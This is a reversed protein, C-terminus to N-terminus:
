ERSVLQFFSEDSLEVQVWGDQGVAIIQGDLCIRRWQEDQEEFDIRLSEIAEYTVNADYVHQGGQYPLTVLRMTEESTVEGIHILHLQADLPQSLPSITYDKELHSVLTVLTYMHSDGEVRTQKVAGVDPDKKAYSVKGRYHRENNDNLSQLLDTAVMKFREAGYRRYFTTDSDAVLSAHLGWSLVVAGYVIIEPDPTSPQAIPERSKGEDVVYVSGPSLRVALMPLKKPTGRVLTSLGDTLDRFQSSNATANGTGMPIIAVIPTVFAGLKLSSFSKILDVLGGDGSLLIVTQSIGAFARPILINNAFESITSSSETKHTQYSKVNLLSLVPKMAQEYFALARGTGAATSVVVHIDPSNVSAQQLHHPWPCSFRMLISEPIDNLRISTVKRRTESVDNAGPVPIDQLIIILYAFENEHTPLCAVIQDFQVKVSTGSTSVTWTLTQSEEATSLSARQGDVLASIKCFGMSAVCDYTPESVQQAFTNFKAKFTEIVTKWDQHPTLSRRPACGIAHRSDLQVDLPASTHCGPSISIRISYSFTSSESDRAEYLEFCIQSLYDL